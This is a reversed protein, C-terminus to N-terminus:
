VAAAGAFAPVKLTAPLGLPPIEVERTETRRADKRM